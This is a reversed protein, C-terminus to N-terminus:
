RGKAVSRYVLEALQVAKAGELADARLAGGRRCPASVSGLVRSLSKHPKTEPVEAM